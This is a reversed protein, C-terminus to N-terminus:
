RLRSSPRRLEQPIVAPIPPARSWQPSVARGTVRVVTPVALGVVSSARHYVTWAIAPHPSVKSAPCPVPAASGAPVGHSAAVDTTSSPGASAVPAPRTSAAGKPTVPAVNSSQPAATRLREPNPIVSEAVNALPTPRDVVARDVVARDVVARDVVARDADAGRRPLPAAAHRRDVPPGPTRPMAAPTPPRTETPPRNAPPHCEPPQQAPMLGLERLSEDTDLRIQKM